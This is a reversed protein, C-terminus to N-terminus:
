YRPYHFTCFWLSLFKSLIISKLNYDLKRM